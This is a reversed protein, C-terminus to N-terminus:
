CLHFANDGVRQYRRRVLRDVKRKQGLVTICLWDHFGTLADESHFAATRFGGPRQDLGYGPYIIGTPFKANQLLSFQLSRIKTEGSGLTQARDKGFQRLLDIASSNEKGAACCGFITLSQPFDAELDPRFRFDHGTAIAIGTERRREIM